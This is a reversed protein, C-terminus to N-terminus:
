EDLGLERALDEDSTTGPEALAEEIQALDFRDILPVFPTPRFTHEVPESHEAFDAASQHKERAREFNVRAQHMQYSVEPESIYREPQYEEPVVVESSQAPHTTIIM